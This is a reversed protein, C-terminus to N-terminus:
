INKMMSKLFHYQFLKKDIIKTIKKSRNKSIETSYQARRLGLIDDSLKAKKDRLERYTM